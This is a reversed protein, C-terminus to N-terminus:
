AWALPGAPANSGPPGTGTTQLAQTFAQTLRELAAHPSIGLQAAVSAALSSALRAIVDGLAVGKDLLEKVSQALKADLAPAATAIAPTAESKAGAFLAGVSVDLTAKFAAGDGALAAPTGSIAGPTNGGATMPSPLSIM